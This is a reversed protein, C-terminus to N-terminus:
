YDRLKEKILRLNKNKKIFVNTPQIGITDIPRYLNCQKAIFFTTM